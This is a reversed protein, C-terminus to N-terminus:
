RVTILIRDLTNGHSDQLALHHSGTVPTWYLTRDARGLVASDLRVLM